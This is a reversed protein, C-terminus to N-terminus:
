LPPWPVSPWDSSPHPFAAAARLREVRDALADIEATTLLPALREPLDAALAAACRDLLHTEVPRLPRGAFGWLVTRLKPEAHLTVGHDIGWLHGDAGRLLHSAKRDSNNLVADLLAVARLEASDAHAVVVPRGDPREGTLIPLWGDPLEGFPVVIVTDAPPPDSGEADDKADDEGGNDPRGAAPLPGSGLLAAPDTVWWQLSGPGHPGDRLVTPPVVDWGGAEDVLAAAVERHALCGTPFDWLPREGRLPKYVAYGPPEDGPVPDLRALLAVNSADLLRGVIDISATRLTDRTAARWADPSTM